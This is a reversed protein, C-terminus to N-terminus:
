WYFVPLWPLVKEGVHTQDVYILVDFNDRPVMSVGDPYADASNENQIWWRSKQRVYSGFTDVFAVKYGQQHLALDLSDVHTPKLFEGQVGTVDYGTLGITFINPIKLKLFSVGSRIAGMGLKWWDSESEMLATHATHAVLITKLEGEQKWINYENQSQALDRANWAHPFGQLSKDWFNQFGIASQVSELMRYRSYVKNIKPSRKLQKELYVEMTKLANMCPTYDARPIRKEKKLTDAREKLRSWDRDGHFWCHERTDRVESEFPLSLEQSIKEIRAQHEWARDWIDIGRWVIPDDPNDYNFDCMWEFLDRDEDTPMYLLNIPMEGEDGNRCKSLWQTLGHSRILPNEWQILRFDEKEVLYKILRHQLQIFGASGHVSEGIAVFETDRILPGLLRAFESSPLKPDVGSLRTVGNSPSAHAQTLLLFVLSFVQIM